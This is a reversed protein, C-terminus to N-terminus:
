NAMLKVEVFYDGVGRLTLNINLTAVHIHIDGRFSGM